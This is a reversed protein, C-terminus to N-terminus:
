LGVTKSRREMIITDRWVGRLQAIRERRGMVRFGHHEHLRVSAINEPFISSQLTWIGAAESSRILENLLTSGIKKGRAEETVYVSVEAVGAYHSRKSVLSLAAWGVVESELVAVHRSHPFHDNDWQEWEPATQQFTAQGTAIGELYISRVRSWHERNLLQIQLM